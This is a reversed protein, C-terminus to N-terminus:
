TGAAEPPWPSFERVADAVRGELSDGSDAWEVAHWVDELARAAREAADVLLLVNRTARAPAYYGSKELRDAMAKVDGRRASLDDAHWCLYDYSGGSM